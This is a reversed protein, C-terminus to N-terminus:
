STAVHSGLRQPRLAAPGGPFSPTPRRLVSPRRAAEGTRQIGFHGGFCLLDNCGEHPVFREIM